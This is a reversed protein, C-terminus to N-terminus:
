AMYEPHFQAFEMDELPLGARVVMGNGDGTCTHARTTSFYIRGCGCSFPVDFNEFEIVTKAANKCLYEITDQDSLWDLGKIRDYAHWSWDDEAINGLAASIGDQATVTHSLMPFIKSISAVSFNTAAIGLALTARLEEVGAGVIIVDVSTKEKLFTSSFSM